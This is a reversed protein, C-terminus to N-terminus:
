KLEENDEPMLSEPENMIRLLSAKETETLESLRKKEVILKWYLSGTIFCSGCTRPTLLRFAYMRPPYDWGQAWAEDDTLLEKKGCADCYHWFHIHKTAEVLNKHKERESQKKAQQEAEKRLEGRAQSVLTPNPQDTLEAVSDDTVTFIKTFGEASNPFEWVKRLDLKAHEYHSKASGGIEKAREECNHYLREDSPMMAYVVIPIDPDIERIADIYGIRRLARYLTHEVIVNKRERVLSVIDDRLLDNARQLEERASLWKTESEKAVSQQYTFVDLRKCDDSQFHHEIFYSKGSANVGIVFSVM